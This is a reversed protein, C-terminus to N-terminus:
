LYHSAVVCLAIIYGALIAYLAGQYATFSKEDHHKLTKM